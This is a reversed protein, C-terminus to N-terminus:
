PFNLGSPRSACEQRVPFRLSFADNIPLRETQSVMRGRISFLRQLREGLPPLTRKIDSHKTQLPVGPQSISDGPRISEKGCAGPVANCGSAGSVAPLADARKEANRREPQGCGPNGDFCCVKVPRFFFLFISLQHVSGNLSYGSRKCLAYTSAARGQVM